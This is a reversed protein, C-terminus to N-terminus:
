RLQTASWVSDIRLFHDAAANGVQLNTEWILRLKEDFCLVTWDQTVQLWRYVRSSMFCTSLGFCVPLYYVHGPRNDLLHRWM